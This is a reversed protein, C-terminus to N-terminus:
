VDCVLNIVTYHVPTRLQTWYIMLAIMHTLYLSYSIRAFPQWITWSLFRNVFGGYGNHCSFIIWSIVLGWAVKSFATFLAGELVSENMGIQTDYLHYPGVALSAVIAICFAWYLAVVKPAIIIRSKKNLHM